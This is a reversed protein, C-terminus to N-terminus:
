LLGKIKTGTRCVHSVPFKSEPSGKQCMESLASLKEQLVLAKSASVCPFLSPDSDLTLTVMRELASSSSSTSSKSSDSIRSADQLTCRRRSVNDNRKLQLRIPKALPNKAKRLAKVQLDILKEKRSRSTKNSRAINANIDSEYVGLKKALIRKRHKQNEEVDNEIKRDQAAKLKRAQVIEANKKNKWDQFVEDSLAQGAAPPKWVKLWNTSPPDSKHRDLFSQFALLALEKQKKAQPPTPEARARMEQFKKQEAPRKWGGHDHMLSFRWAEAVQGGTPAPIESLSGGSVYRIYASGLGTKHITHSGFVTGGSVEPASGSPNQHFCSSVLESDYSPSKWQSM